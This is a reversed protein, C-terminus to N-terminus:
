DTDVHIRGWVINILNVLTFKWKVRNEWNSVMSWFLLMLTPPYPAIKKISIQQSFRIVCHDSATISPDQCFIFVSQYPNNVFKHTFQWYVLSVYIINVACPHSWVREKEIEKLIEAADTSQLNGGYRLCTPSQTRMPVTFVLGSIKTNRCLVLGSASYQGCYM